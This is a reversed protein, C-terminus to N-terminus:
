AALAPRSRVVNVVAGLLIIIGAFYLWTVFLLVVGVAGYAQYRGANAAYLQFGAQLITWGVATFVAGPLVERLDVSIPPLVYYIPVFVLVLGVFLALWSLTWAFPVVGAVLGLVTGLGIMLALAGTGTLIVVLGNVVEELFSEEAVEDYVVDFARSLGRFVKLAGWAAVGLAVVTAETRGAETTLAEVVLDEGAEPLFDGAVLILRQAVAEGGLLSGVVLALLVMPVLSVFAYYAFGAALFTVDRDSATRYIAFLGAKADM